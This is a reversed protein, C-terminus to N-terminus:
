TASGRAVIIVDLGLQDLIAMVKDFQLTPKGNELECIFRNGTHGLGALDLQTLRQTKRHAVVIAGLDKATVIRDGKQLSPVM